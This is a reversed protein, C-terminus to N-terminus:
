LDKSKGSKHDKIASQALLDLKGESSNKEIQKDWVDADFKEYWSRFQSLENQPLKEIAQELEELTKAM